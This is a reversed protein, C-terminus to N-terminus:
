LSSHQMDCLLACFVKFISVCQMASNERFLTLFRVHFLQNLYPQLLMSCKQNLLNKPKARALSKQMSNRPYFLRCWFNCRFFLLCIFSKKALLHTDDDVVRVKLFACLFDCKLPRQENKGMNKWIM